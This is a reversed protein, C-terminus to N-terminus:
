SEKQLFSASSGLRGGPPKSESPTSHLSREARDLRQTVRAKGLIWVPDHDLSIQKLLKEWM